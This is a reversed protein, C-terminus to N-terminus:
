SEQYTIFELLSGDPDRFYVSVGEGGAGPRPLSAMVVVAPAASLAPESVEEGV